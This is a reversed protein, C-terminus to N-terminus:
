IMGTKLELHSRDSQSEEYSFLNANIKELYSIKTIEYKAIQEELSDRKECAETYDDHELDIKNDEHDEITETIRKLDNELQFLIKRIKGYENNLSPQEPTPIHPTSNPLIKEITGELLGQTKKTLEELTAIEQELKEKNIQGFFITPKLSSKKFGLMMSYEDLKEKLQDSTMKELAYEKTTQARILSREEKTYLLDNQIETYKNIEAHYLFTEAGIRDLCDKKSTPLTELIDPSCIGSSKISQLLESVDDEETKHPNSIVSHAYFLGAQETKLKGLKKKLSKLNAIEIEYEQSPKGENAFSVHKFGKKRSLHAGENLPISQLVARKKPESSSQRLSQDANAGSLLAVLLFPLSYFFNKTM